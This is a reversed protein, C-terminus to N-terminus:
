QEKEKLKKLAEQKLKQHHKDNKTIEEEEKDLNDINIKGNELGSVGYIGFQEDWNLTLFYDLKPQIPTYKGKINFQKGPSRKFDYTFYPEWITITDGIEVKKKSNNVIVNEVKIKTLTYGDYFEDQFIVKNESKGIKKGKIVLDNKQLVEEFNEPSIYFLSDNRIEQVYIKDAVLYAVVLFFVLFGLFFMIKKVM